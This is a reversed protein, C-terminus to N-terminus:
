ETVGDGRWGKPGKRRVDDSRFAHTRGQNRRPSSEAEGTGRM